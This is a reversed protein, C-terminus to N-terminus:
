LVDVDVSEWIRGGRHHLDVRRCRRKGGLLNLALDRERDLLRDAAQRSKFLESRDGFETKGLDHAKLLGNLAGIFEKREEATPQRRKKAPPMEALATMEHINAWRKGDKAHFPEDILDYLQFSGKAGTEGHCDVCYQRLLAAPENAGVGECFLCLMLLTLLQRVIWRCLTNEASNM